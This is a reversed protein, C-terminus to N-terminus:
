KWLCFSNYRKSFSRENTRKRRVQELLNFLSVLIKGELLNYSMNLYRLRFLMGVEQPINSQFSNDGLNLSRLFSLNGISPSISGSLKFGGLDLSTVREQKRGCTIGIWHCLPFSHNWSALVERKNETVQSKFELLAQMDTENSFRAQAFVLICVQLLMLANFAFFLSIKMDIILLIFSLNQKL